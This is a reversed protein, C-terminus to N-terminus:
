DPLKHGRHGMAYLHVVMLETKSTCLIIGDSHLVNRRYKQVNILARGFKGNGGTCTEENLPRGKRAYRLAPEGLLVSQGVGSVHLDEPLIEIYQLIAIRHM